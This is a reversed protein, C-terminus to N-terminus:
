LRDLLGAVGMLVLGAGFVIVAATYQAYKRKVLNSLTWTQEVIRDHPTGADDLARRFDEVSDYGAVHGFYRLRERGEIHRVRPTLAVILITIAALASAAGMCWTVALGTRLDLPDWNGAIIAALVVSVVIGFTNLTTALKSDVRFLEERTETHLDQVYEGNM